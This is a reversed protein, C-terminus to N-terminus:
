KVEVPYEECAIRVTEELIKNREALREIEAAQAALQRKYCHKSRVHSPNDVAVVCWEDFRLNSQEAGCRPCTDKTTM